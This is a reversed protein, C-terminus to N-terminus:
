ITENRSWLWKFAEVDMIVVKRDFAKKKWFILWHRGEKTNDKAQQITAPVSLSEVAKVEVDFPFRKYASGTLIIDVGSLGMSRAKIESQDDQNDWPIGLLNAIYDAVELQTNAGKQKGYRSARPKRATNVKKVVSEPLVGAILQEQEKDTLNISRTGM